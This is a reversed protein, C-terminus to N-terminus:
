SITISFGALQGLPAPGDPPEGNEDDQAQSSVAVLTGIIAAGVGALVIKKGDAM